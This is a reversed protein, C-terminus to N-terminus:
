TTTRFLHGAVSWVLIPGKALIIVLYRENPTFSCQCFSSQADSLEYVTENTRRDIVTVTGKTMCAYLKCSVACSWIPHVTEHVVDTQLTSLDTRYLKGTNWSMYVCTDYLVCQTTYFCPSSILFRHCITEHATDWVEMEGSLGTLVVYRGTSSFAVFIAPVGVKVSSQFRLGDSIDWKDFQRGSTTYLETGTPSCFLNLTRQQTLYSTETWTDMNVLRLTNSGEAVVVFERGPALCCVHGRIQRPLPVCSLLDLDYIVLEDFKSVTAFLGESFYSIHIEIWLEMPLCKRYRRGAMILLLINCRVRWHPAYSSTRGIDM